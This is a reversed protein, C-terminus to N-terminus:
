ALEHDTNISISIITGHLDKTESFLATAAAYVAKSGRAQGPTFSEIVADSSFNKLFDTASQASAM